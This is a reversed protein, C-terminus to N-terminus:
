RCVFTPGGAGGAETKGLGGAAAKGCTREAWHGM